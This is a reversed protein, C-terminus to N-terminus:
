SWSPFIDSLKPGNFWSPPSLLNFTSMVRALSFHTTKEFKDLPTGGIKNTPSSPLVIGTQKELVILEDYMKDWEKDSITPNDLVYYNYNAELLSDILEPMKTTNLFQM